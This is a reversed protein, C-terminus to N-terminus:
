PPRPAAAAPSGAAATGVAVGSAKLMNRRSIQRTTHM